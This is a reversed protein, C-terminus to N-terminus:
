LKRFTEFRNKMLTGADGRAYGVVWPPVARAATSDEAALIVHIPPGASTLGTLEMASELRSRSLARLRAEFREFGPPSEVVLEPVEGAMALFGCFVMGVTALLWRANKGPNRM